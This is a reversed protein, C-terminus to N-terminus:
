SDVMQSLACCLYPKRLGAIVNAFVSLPRTLAGCISHCSFQLIPCCHHHVHLVHLVHQDPPRTKLVNSLSVENGPIIDRRGGVVAQLLTHTTPDAAMFAALIDANTVGSTFRPFGNYVPFSSYLNSPPPPADVM